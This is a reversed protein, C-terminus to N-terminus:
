SAVSSSLMGIGDSNREIAKIIHYIQRWDYARYFDNPENAEEVQNWPYNLCISKYQREPALLHWLCDDILIDLNLLSKNQINITKRWVYDKPFFQMNRSLHNIKKRLNEPLSSTVFYIDYGEEYLKQIVEACYPIMEIKKWMKSDRFGADVIWRYQEPLAAEISYSTIDDLELDVPLRENIYNVLCQTTNVCVCDIDIGIKEISM